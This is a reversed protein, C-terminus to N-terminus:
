AHYLKVIAALLAEHSNKSLMQPPVYFYIAPVAITITLLHFLSIDTALNTNAFIIFSYAIVLLLYLCDIGMERKDRLVLLASIFALCLSYVPPTTILTLGAVVLFYRGYLLRLRFASIIM